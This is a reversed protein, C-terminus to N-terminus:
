KLKGIVVQRNKGDDTCTIVTLRDDGFDDLVSINKPNVINYESVVYIYKTIFPVTIDQLATIEKVLQVREKLIDQLLLFHKKIQEM